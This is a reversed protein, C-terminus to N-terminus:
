RAPPTSAATPRRPLCSTTAEGLWTRNVRVWQEEAAPDLLCFALTREEYPANLDVETSCGWGLAIVLGLFWVPANRKVM